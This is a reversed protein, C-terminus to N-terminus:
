KKNFFSRVKAIIQRDTMKDTTEIGAIRKSLPKIKQIEKKFETKAEGPGFIFLKDTDRILKIVKQYYQRLYKKHKKHLKSESSIDQPGYPTSSRSGGSLRVRGTIHSKVTKVEEHDDQLIVMITKEHDIWLGIRKKKTNM